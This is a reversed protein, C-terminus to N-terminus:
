AAWRTKDALAYRACEALWASGHAECWELWSAVAQRGGPPDGALAAGEREAEFLLNLRRFLRADQRRQLASEMAQAWVRRDRSALGARIYAMRGSTDLCGVIHLVVEIHRHAEERLVQTLLEFAEANASGGALHQAILLKDLALHLQRETARSMLGARDEIDSAALASIMVCCLEFDSERRGLSEAWAEPNRPLFTSANERGALRVQHDTDRLAASLWDLPPADPLPLRAAALIAATRVQAAPDALAREIVAGTGDPGPQPCRSWIGLALARATADAATLLPAVLPMLEHQPGASLAGLAALSDEERSSALLARLVDLARGRMDPTTGGALCGVAVAARLGPRATELWADAQQTVAPFGAALVLRATTEELRPEGDVAAEWLVTEWGAPALRAIHGALPEQLRPPLAPYAGLMAAGAHEPALRELMEAYNALLEPTESLRMQGALQFAGAKDLAGLPAMQDRGEAFVSEGVLEVMSEGYAQNKKLKVWLLAVAVLVGGGAVWELPVETSILGLFLAAALLGLPLVLGTMLASVRGRMYAPLAEYFLGAVNNRFGPLVGRSNIRGLVATTYSANVAMLGLTLLSSVPFILNMGKMGLRRTLRGFVLLQTLLVGIDTLASLWGFFAALEREDPYHQVFVRGAVYEQISLLMVLLFMGAATIRALRSTRTFMLGERLMLVPSTARSRKIPCRAPEGRHRWALLAVTLALSATWVLAAHQIPVATGAVGVFTGGLIRGALFIAMVSPLLRKAQQTDFFGVVYLHFHTLLLESIVGYAVFYAAIGGQGGDRMMLLWAVGVAAGFGLMMYFLMRHSTLRDVFAAYALSAPLLALAILAYMHPLYEVGYLKFFLADSSVQGVSLGFGAILSLLYLFLVVPGEGPRIMFLRVLAHRANM